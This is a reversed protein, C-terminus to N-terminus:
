DEKIMGLSYKLYNELIDKENDPIKELIKKAELSYNLQLEYLKKNYEEILENVKSYGYTYTNNNVYKTLKDKSQIAIDALDCGEPLNVVKCYMDNEIFLNAAKQTAYRGKDDGDYIIIPTLGLRKIIDVHQQSLATGLTCVVNQLGYKTALIVDMSGETIIIYKLEPKIYHIGYLFTSKNFIDSNKSNIYKSSIGKTRYDLIRKNFGVIHNAKNYLPFVIRNTEKDYGIHWQDIEKYTIDRTELYEIAEQTLDKHYKNAMRFNKDYKPQNEDNPIPINARDALCLLADTWSYEGETIWQIFAICDSGYQNDQNCGFCAWTNTDVFVTFSPTSDNHKPHPCQGQWTNSSAKKMDTYENALELMNTANKVTDIFEREYVM